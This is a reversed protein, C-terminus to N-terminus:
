PNAEFLTYEGISLVIRQTSDKVVVAYTGPGEAAIPDNGCLKDWSGAPTDGPGDETTVLVGDHTVLWVVRSDKPLSVGLVASWWVSTALPFSTGTGSVSCNSGHGTGFVVIGPKLSPDIVFGPTASTPVPAVAHVTPGPATTPSDFGFSDLGGSSIFRSILNFAIFGFVLLTWITSLRNGPRTASRRQSTAWANGSAAQAPAGGPQTPAALAVTPESSLENAVGPAVTRGSVRPGPNRLTNPAVQGTLQNPRGTASPADNARSGRGWGEDTM